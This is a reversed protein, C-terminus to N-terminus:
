ILLEASIEKKTKRYHSAMLQFKNLKLMLVTNLILMHVYIQTSAVSSVFLLTSYIYHTHKIEFFFTQLAVLYIILVTVVVIKITVENNIQVTM